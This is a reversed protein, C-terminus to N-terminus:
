PREGPAHDRLLVRLRDEARSLHSKVAGPSLGLVDAVWSIAMDACRHLYVVERQRVTLAGLATEVDVLLAASLAPDATTTPVWRRQWRTDNVARSTSARRRDRAVGRAIKYLYATPNPNATVERGKRCVVLFTDQVVDEVESRSTGRTVLYGILRGAERECLRAAEDHDGM